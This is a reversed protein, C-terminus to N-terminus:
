RSVIRIEDNGTNPVVKFEAAMMQRGQYEQPRLSMRQVNPMHVTIRNGATGGIAFGLSTNTDSRMASVFAIEDSPTGYFLTGRGMVNRDTIDISRGNLLKMHQVSNGIDISFEGNVAQTGGSIAGTTYTAGIRWEASNAENIALPKKWATFDGTPTATASLVTQLSTFDFQLLPLGFANLSLTVTGRAGTATHLVGDLFYRITLSPFSTSIPLYEVRDAAVITQAFGCARLLPGWAPATGATGSAALEVEFQMRGTSVTFIEDFGGMYGRLLERPERDSPTDLTANRVPVVHTGAWSGPDTGYTSEIQVQIATNRVFRSM